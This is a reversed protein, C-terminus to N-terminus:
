RRRLVVEGDAHEADVEFAVELLRVFGEVNHIRFGGDVRIEALGPDEILIRRANYRNFEAAAEILPTASFVIEGSRWELAREAEEMSSAEVEVTNGRVTAVTGAILLPIPSAPPAAGTQLRVAGETVVVRIPREAESGANGVGTRVAFRTGVATLSIAGAEVSFPRRADPVVQFYAEGRELVIRRARRTLTLQLRTGSSLVVGSGDPLRLERTDGLATYHEAQEIPAHAYWYWGGLSLAAALLLGAVAGALRLGRRKRSRQRRPLFQLAAHDGEEEAEGGKRASGSQAGTSVGLGQHTFFPSQRWGAKDPVEGTAVGAGLARLRDAQKWVSRLRIYAVQHAASESLWADLGEQDAQTWRRETDSRRALWDAAAREIARHNDM